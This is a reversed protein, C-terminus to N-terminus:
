FSRLCNKEEIKAESDQAESYYEDIIDLVDM